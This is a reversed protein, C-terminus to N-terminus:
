EGVLEEEFVIHAPIRRCGLGRESANIVDEIAPDVREIDKLAHGGTRGKAGRSSGGADSQERHFQSYVEKRSNRVQEIPVVPTTCDNPSAQSSSSPLSNAISSPPIDASKDPVTEENEEQNVTRELQDVVEPSVSQAPINEKEHDSRTCQKKKPREKPASAGAHQAAEKAARSEERKRKQSEKETAVSDFSKSEAFAVATAERLLDRSGRGMRQWLSCMTSKNARWLFVLGIDPIDMGQVNNEPLSLILNANLICVTGLTDTAYAGMLKGGKFEDVLAERYSPSMESHHWKVRNRDELPLRARMKLCANVCDLISDFIGLFKPPCPDGTKWGDPVLFNLDMFSSLSHKIERVVLFVNHRDSSRRM